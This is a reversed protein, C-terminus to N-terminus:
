MPGFSPLGRFESKLIKAVGVRLLEIIHFLYLAENDISFSKELGECPHVSGLQFKVHINFSSGAQPESRAELFGREGRDRYM